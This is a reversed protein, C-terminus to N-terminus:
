VVSASSNRSNFGAINAFNHTKAKAATAAPHELAVVDVVGDVTVGDVNTMVHGPVANGVVPTPAVDLVDMATVSHFVPVAATGTALTASDFGVSNGKEVV